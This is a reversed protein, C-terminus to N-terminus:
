NIVPKRTHKETMDNKGLTLYVNTSEKAITSIKNDSAFKFLM